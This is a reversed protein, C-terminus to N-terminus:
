VVSSNHVHGKDYGNMIEKSSTNVTSQYRLFPFSM